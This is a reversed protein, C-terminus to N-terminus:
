SSKFVYQLSVGLQEVYLIYCLSPQKSSTDDEFFVEATRSRSNRKGEGVGGLFLM